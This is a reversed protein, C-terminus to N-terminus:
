IVSDLALCTPSRKVSSLIRSKMRRLRKLSRFLNGAARAASWSTRNAPNPLKRCSGALRAGQWIETDLGALLAKAATIAKDDSDCTIETAPGAIRNDKSVAYIRYDPM